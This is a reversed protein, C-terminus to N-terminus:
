MRMNNETTPDEPDLLQLSQCELLYSDTARPLMIVMYKNNYVFANFGLHDFFV